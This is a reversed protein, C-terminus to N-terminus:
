HLGPSHDQLSKPDLAPLSATTAAWWLAMASLVGPTGPIVTVVLHSHHHTATLALRHDQAHWGVASVPWLDDPAAALRQAPACLAAFAM